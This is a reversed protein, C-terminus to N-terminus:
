EMTFTPLPYRNADPKAILQVAMGSEVTQPDDCIVRSILSVGEPLAIEALVIPIEPNFSEHNPRYVLSFAVIRGRGQMDRWQLDDSWCHPCAARPYYFVRNCDICYPFCLRGEGWAELFPANDADMHPEPYTTGASM